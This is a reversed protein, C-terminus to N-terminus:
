TKHFFALVKDIFNKVHAPQAAISEADLKAKAEDPVHKAYARAIAILHPIAQSHTILIVVLIAVLLLLFGLGLAEFYAAWQAIYLLMCGLASAVAALKIFLARKIPMFIALVILGLAAFGLLGSVWYIKTQRAEVIFNQVDGLLKKNSEQAALIIYNNAEIRAKAEEITKVKADNDGRLAAIQDQMKKDADLQDKTAQSTPAVTPVPRSDDEGCSPLFVLLFLLIILKKM